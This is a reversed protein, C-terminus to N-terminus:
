NIFRKINLVYTDEITGTVDNISSIRIAAYINNLKFLIIDNTQISTVRDLMSSSNIASTLLNPTAEAYNFDNFKTFKGGAPSIFAHSLQTANAVSVSDDRLQQITNNSMSSIGLNLLEINLFDALGSEHSHLIIGAYEQLPPNVAHVMLTRGINFVEGKTDTLSFILDLSYDTTSDPVLFEWALNFNKVTNITSDLIIQSSTNKKKQKIKLNTFGDTAFGNLNFTIWDQSNANLILDSPTIQFYSYPEDNKTCNISLSILFLPIFFLKLFRLLKIKSM